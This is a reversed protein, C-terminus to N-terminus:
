SQALAVQPDHNETGRPPQIMPFKVAAASSIQIKKLHLFQDHDNRTSSGSSM